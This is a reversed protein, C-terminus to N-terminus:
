WIIYIYSTTQKNIQKDTYQVGQEDTNLNHLRTTEKGDKRTSTIYEKRGIYNTLGVELINIVINPM